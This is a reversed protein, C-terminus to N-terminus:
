KGAMIKNRHKEKDTEPGWPLVIGLSCFWRPATLSKRNLLLNLKNINVVVINNKWRATSPVMARQYRLCRANSNRQIKQRKWREVRESHFLVKRKTPSASDARHIAPFLVQESSLKEVFSPFGPTEMLIRSSISLYGKFISFITLFIQIFFLRSFSLLSSIIFLLIFNYNLSVSICSIPFLNSSSLFHTELLYKFITGSILLPVLQHLSPTLM